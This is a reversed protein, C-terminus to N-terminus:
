QRDEPDLMAYAQTASVWELEGLLEDESASAILYDDILLALESELEHDYSNTGAFERATEIQSTPDAVEASVVISAGIGGSGPLDQSHLWIAVILVVVVGVIAPMWGRAPTRSGELTRRVRHVFAGSQLPNLKAPPLQKSWSLTAEWEVLQERCQTCSQLHASTTNSPLEGDAAAILQDENLHATM